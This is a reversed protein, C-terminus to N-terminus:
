PCPPVKTSLSAISLRHSTDEKEKEEVEDYEQKQDERQKSSVAGHDCRGQHRPGPHNTGNRPDAPKRRGHERGTAAPRSAQANETLLREGDGGQASDAVAQRPLDVFPAFHGRTPRVAVVSMERDRKAQEELADGCPDAV